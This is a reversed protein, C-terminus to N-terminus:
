DEWKHKIVEIIKMKEIERKLMERENWLTANNLVLENYAKCYDFYHKMFDNFIEIVDENPKYTYDVANIREIYKDSFTM